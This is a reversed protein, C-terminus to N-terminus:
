LGKEATSKINNLKEKSAIRIEPYENTVYQFATILDVLFDNQYEESLPSNSNKMNLIFSPSYIPMTKIGNIEIWKGHSKMISTNNEFMNLPVGGLLIILVPKM